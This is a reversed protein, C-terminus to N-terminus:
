AGGSGAVLDSTSTFRREAAWADLDEARYLRRRGFAHFVPGGGRIRLAELTRRSLGLYAAAERTGFYKGHM